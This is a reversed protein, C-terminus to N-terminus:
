EAIGEILEAITVGLGDYIDSWIKKHLHSFRLPLTRIM